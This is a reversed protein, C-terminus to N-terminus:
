GLTESYVVAAGEPCNLLVYRTLGTNFSATRLRVNYLSYQKVDREMGQEELILLRRLRRVHTLKIAALPDSPDAAVSPLDRFIARQIVSQCAPRDGSIAPVPHGACVSSLDAHRGPLVGAPPRTGATSPLQYIM